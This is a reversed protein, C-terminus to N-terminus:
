ELSSITAERVVSDCFNGEKQSEKYVQKQDKSRHSSHHRKLTKFAKNKTKITKVGGKETKERTWTRMVLEQGVKIVSM